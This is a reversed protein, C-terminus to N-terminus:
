NSFVLRMSGDPKDVLLPSRNTFLDLLQDDSIFVLEGPFTETTVEVLSTVQGTSVIQALGQRTREEKYPMAAVSADRPEAPNKAPQRLLQFGIAIVVLSLLSAALCARNKRRRARSAIAESAAMACLNERFAKDGLLDLLADDLLRNRKDQNNM